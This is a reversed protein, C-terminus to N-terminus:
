SELDVTELSRSFFEETSSKIEISFWLKFLIFRIANLLAM